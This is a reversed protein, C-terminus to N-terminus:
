AIMAAALRFAPWTCAMDHQSYTMTHAGHSVQATSAYDYGPSTDGLSGDVSYPAPPYQLAQRMGMQTAQHQQMQWQWLMDQQAQLGYAEVLQGGLEAHNPTAGELRQASGSRANPSDGSSSRPRRMRQTAQQVTASQPAGYTAQPM